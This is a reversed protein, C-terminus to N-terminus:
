IHPIEATKLDEYLGILNEELEERSMGQTVYDPYDLLYGLHYGNDEWHIYKLKVM